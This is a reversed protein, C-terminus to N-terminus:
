YILDDTSGFGKDGRNTEDLNDVEKFTISPLKVFLIQGIRDGINYHKTDAIYKFRFKIEGTYDSDVVGVANALILGTNSISSRSFLLGVHNDPIKVSIGTGYEIYGYEPTNVVNMSTAVLDFGASGLTGKTPVNANDSLKKIKIQM